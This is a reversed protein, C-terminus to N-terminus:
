FQRLVLSRGQRRAEQRRRWYDTAFIRPGAEILRPLMQFVSVPTWKHGERTTHGKRNLEQAVASYPGDQVLLDLMTALVEAEQPDEEVTSDKVRLGFPLQEAEAPTAAAASAPVEREWEVAVARWGQNQLKLLEDVNLPGSISQRIRETPSM